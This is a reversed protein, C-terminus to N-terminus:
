SSIQKAIQKQHERYRSRRWRISARMSPLWRRRVPPAARGSKRKPRCISRGPLRLIRDINQTGAVSGLREMLAKNRMEVDDIKAQDEPEIVVRKQLRWLVNLGNGSEVIAGAAPKFAGLAKLYRAKAEEPSEGKKPDLDGHMFEIAAIDKKAAKCKMAQRTPNVSYYLNCKGNHKDVFSRVEDATYLTCTETGGDPVIATL